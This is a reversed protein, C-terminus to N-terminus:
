PNESERKKRIIYGPEVPVSTEIYYPYPARNAKEVRNGERDYLRYATDYLGLVAPGIYELREGERISNRLELRRRGEGITPEEEGILGLFEYRRRYSGETTEDADGRAFYFGTSYERHSVNELEERHAELEKTEPPLRGERRCADPELKDIARRYARTAVATYYLSKMRGEIKLSDVGADRLVELHDFMNLDKSSLITTYGDEEIVPFHEGPRQKEELLRYHWRCSHTCDGRNASRGTMYSSLYCRGSFALCMAGHVFAELEVDPVARRIERIEELMAERGLIIRSFGLDRYARAAEANLCNAQTSLHFRAEPLRRKLLSFAGLDSVIFADIPLEAIADIEGELRAIDENRYYINFAGYLKKEGKIRRLRDALSEVSAEGGAPSEASPSSAPEFSFNDARARLSFSGLGIYAADAGYRYAYALKEENGAPSLLEIGESPM